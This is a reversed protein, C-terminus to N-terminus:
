EKLLRNSEEVRQIELLIFPGREFVFKVNFVTPKLLIRVRITLTSPSWKVVVVVVVFAWSRTTKELRPNRNKTM